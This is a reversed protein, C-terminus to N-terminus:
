PATTSSCHDKAPTTKYVWLAYFGTLVLTIEEYCNVFGFVKPINVFAWVLLLALITRDINPIAATLLALTFGAMPCPFGPLAIMGHGTFIGLVPFLFALLIFFAVAARRLPPVSFTFRIKKPGLLDVIFLFGVVIYLPGALFRAISYDWCYLLFCAVGNWLFAAALFVKVLSDTRHGPKKAIRWITFLYGIVLLAQIILTDYRFERLTNWFADAPDM